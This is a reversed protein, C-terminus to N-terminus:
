ERPRLLLPSFVGRLPRRAASKDHVGSFAKESIIKIINYAGHKAVTVQIMRSDVQFHPSKEITKLVRVANMM